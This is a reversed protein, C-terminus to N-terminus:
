SLKKRLTYIPVEAPCGLRYPFWHGAGASTYLQSGGKEYWGWMYKKELVSEMISRGNWGIQGGHTHGALTLQVGMDAAHHFGEPRHSMLITFVDTPHDRLAADITTRFFSEHISGLSRPDDVGAIYLVSNGVNVSQGSSLLLPIPGREYCSLIETIGRFYEHNGISAFSGYTAPIKSSLALADSYITVDDSFDGTILVLDVQNVSALAVIRELEPMGLFLGLHVDSLHLVRFGNLVDPLSAFFLNINPFRPGQFSSALGKGGVVIAFAPFAFAATKLVSRRTEDPTHMAETRLQSRRKIRAGIFSLFHLLASFPLSLMLALGIILVASAGYAGFEILMREGYIIGLTWVSLFVIGSTPISFSSVRIWLSKWWDKHLKKLFYIEVVSLIAIAVMSFAVPFFVRM